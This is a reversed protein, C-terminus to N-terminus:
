TFKKNGSINQELLGFGEEATVPMGFLYGQAFNCNTKLLFELQEKTEVGEAVVSLYSKHGIQVISETLDKNTGLDDIFSKDIKIKNIPLDQLYSLSSYGKGFDDIAIVVGLEQLRRLKEFNAGITEMLVTETLELELYSPALSVENLINLVTEIFDAQMLQLVSVNVAIKLENYGREHLSKIFYCATRIVWKGIPIILGTEEAVNIFRVPLLYGYKLSDWRILAEFGYIRGTALDIQPQYHLVFENNVLATRLGEEMNIRELLQDNMTKDFM